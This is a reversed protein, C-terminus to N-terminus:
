ERLLSFRRTSTIYDDLAQVIIKDSDPDSCGYLYVDITPNIELSNMRNILRLRQVAYLPCSTFYHSTSEPLGCSCDPNPLIHMIFLHQNLESCKMRIRALIINLRRRGLHFFSEGRPRDGILTSRLTVRSQISRINPDTNNWVRTMRPYFSNRFTETRLTPQSLNNRNRLNYREGTREGVTQPLHETLYQPARDHVIDSYLLLMRDERRATLSQWSLENYLTESSTGRIAGSVIRGARKQIDDLKGLNEQTSNCFLVDSYELISRVYTKYLLDLSRRSLKLSLSNIIDLRRNAKICISEIQQDWKLNRQLIVGLHQTHAVDNVRTDQMYLDPQLETNGMGISMSLTKDPNFRVLWKKAWLELKALDENLIRANTESSDSTVYLLNDDAFLCLKSQLGESMDNIYVLFLLPGLVSGQPVGAGINKWQSSSGQLIVRQERSALYNTFWALLDGNVGAAKLKYILGKHWVKDFAKSIDGFVMRIKKQNDFAQAIVHYLHVLHHTTGVGPLFGSQYKYIVNSDRFYNFLHKFIAKEMVKGVVSLLSVPRYNNPLSKDGKKHLPIVNAQKWIHPFIGQQLSLNFIRTLPKSFSTATHKLMIPSIGDPGSAKSTNLSKLIAHVEEESLIINSLSADHTQAPDDPLTSNSDDLTSHSCFFDNLLRVKSQNDHVASGTPLLLAPVSETRKTGLFERITQWWNRSSLTKNDLKNAQSQEYKQKADNLAHVYKNRSQRYTGWAHVTNSTKAKNFLRDRHRKMSRLINNYWPKDLPRIVALRNPIFQRALSLFSQSLRSAIEDLSTAEFCLEWNYQSIAANLGVWDAKSYQWVHRSHKVPKPFTLSISCAIQCHDTTGLPALVTIDVLNLSTTSIFQDLITSSTPTIRTPTDVYKILSNSDLMTQLRRGNITGPDANLDGTIIIHEYGAQRILDYVHQLDEWFKVPSDPPRYCVCTLIKSHKIILEVCLIEIGVLEFQEKRSAVLDNSAYLAVGGGAATGQGRDRRFLPHYGDLCLNTKSLNTLLTETIALVNYRHQVETAIALLKESNLGRVNCHWLSIGPGPNLEVDGAITLLNHLLVLLSLLICTLVVYSTTSDSKGARYHKANYLGIRARYVSIDIGM